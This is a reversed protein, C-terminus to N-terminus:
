LPAQLAQGTEAPARDLHVEAERGAIQGSQARPLLNVEAGVWVRALFRQRGVKLARHELAQAIPMDLAAVPTEGDSNFLVRTALGRRSDGLGPGHDSEPEIETIQSLHREISTGSDSDAARRRRGARASSAISRIRKGDADIGADAVWLILN